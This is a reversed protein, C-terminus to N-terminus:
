HGALLDQMMEATIMVAAQEESFYRSAIGAATTLVLQVMGDVHQEFEARARRKRSPILDLLHMEASFFRHAILGLVVTVEYPDDAFEEIRADVQQLLGFVVRSNALSQAQYDKL